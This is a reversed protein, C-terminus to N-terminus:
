ILSLRVTVMLVKKLDPVPREGIAATNMNAPAGTKPHTFTRKPM